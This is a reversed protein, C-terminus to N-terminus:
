ILSCREMWGKQSPLLGQGKGEGEQKACVAYSPLLSDMWPPGEGM